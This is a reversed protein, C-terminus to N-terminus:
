PRRKRELPPKRELYRYPDAAELDERLQERTRGCADCLGDILWTAEQDAPTPILRFSWHIVGGCPCAIPVGACHPCSFGGRHHEKGGFKFPAQPKTMTEQM